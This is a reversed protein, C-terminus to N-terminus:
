CVFPQSVIYFLFGGVDVSVFYRFFPFLFPFRYILCFAFSM